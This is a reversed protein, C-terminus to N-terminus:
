ENDVEEKLQIVTSLDLETDEAVIEVSIGRKLFRKAITIREDEIREEAYVRRAIEENYETALISVVTGGNERLFEALIDNAICHTVTERVAQEYDTYIKQLERLKAVFESYQRLKDSGGVFEDNMGANINYVPIELELYGLTGDQEYMFANSLKLTEKAPREDIGNYFIVFEPTPIKYLKGGYLFREDEKVKIWKECLQGFYILIRTPMNKYDSAMHEGIVMARSRVVFALDNKRKGSVVATLTIIEVEDPTCKIGSLAYYLEAANEPEGFLLRFVGDKINRNAHPVDHAMDPTIAKDDELQTVGVNDNYCTRRSEVVCLKKTKHM